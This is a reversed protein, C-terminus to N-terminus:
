SVKIKKRIEIQVNTVSNSNKARTILLILPNVQVLHLTMFLRTLFATVGMSVFDISILASFHNSIITQTQHDHFFRAVIMTNFIM